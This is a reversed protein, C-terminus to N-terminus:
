RNTINTCSEDMIKEFASFEGANGFTVAFENGNTEITWFKDSKEDKYQFTQKM